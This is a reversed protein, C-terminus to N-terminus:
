LTIGFRRALILATVVSLLAYVMMWHVRWGLVDLGPETYPVFIAAIPGGAPLPAESPYLLQNLLGPSVRGPSRRALRNSVRLTKTAASGGIRVTLTHDGEADPVIRWLVENLAVLRVPGTEVRIGPPAVIVVDPPASGSAASSRLEDRILASNGVELGAYGYVAHLHAVLLTLPVAMWALPVLSLRLYTANHRLADGLARLVARLDDNFLRIEFLAAHIGRKTRVLRKQDSTWAVVPLTAAATALAVVLLSVIPPLGLLPSLVLDVLVTLADNV